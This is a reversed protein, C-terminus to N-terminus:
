WNLLKDWRSVDECVHRSIHLSTDPCGIDKDLQFVIMIVMFPGKWKETNWM